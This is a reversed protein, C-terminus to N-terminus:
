RGDQRAPGYTRAKWAGGRGSWHRRASDVTMAVFLAAAAPLALGAPWALRYLRNTPGAALAMAAWGLAGLGAALGSAHFPYALVAAPPVLYILAMALVTGILALTSYGLQDFASRAVMAWIDALGPYPRLSRSGKTLALRIAGGPKVARALAVDDILASGIAAIGGIRTLATRRLLMCGGAAAATGARPDNVWAFPFLKQFFFVFPPILLREWFSRVRLLVMLSMLDLARAEAEAVLARLMAPDHEIDADSLWIFAPDGPAAEIHALGQSLAWVKGAWGPELRAATIVSVPRGGTAAARALDATGDDSDDDVVVISLPGPYDQGALSAVARAITAAENRAPIVAAVAPWDSPAAAADAPGDLRPRARWFGGRAAILWIWAALAAAALLVWSM